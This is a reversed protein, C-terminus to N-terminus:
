PRQPMAKCQTYTTAHESSPRTAYITMLVLHVFRISFILVYEVCVNKRSMITIRTLLSLDQKAYGGVFYPDHHHHHPPQMM